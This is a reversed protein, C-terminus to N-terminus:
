DFGENKEYEEIDLIVYKVRDNETLFVPEGVKVDELVNMYDKLDTVSKINAM